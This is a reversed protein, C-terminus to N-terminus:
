NDKKNKRIQESNKAQPDDPQKKGCGGLALIAAVLLVVIPISVKARKM